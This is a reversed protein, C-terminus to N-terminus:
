RVGRGRLAGMIELFEAHTGAGAVELAADLITLAAMAEGVVSAAPVACVDSREVVAEVREGTRLDVSPLARGVTPLPKMTARAIVPEGNTMGGELGGARNTPRRPRGDPGVEIADHFSLGPTEGSAFGDGIEVAKIAPISMLAQALRGDLKLDWQVHSGLGAPAGAIEIEFSGGLTDGRERCEEVLARAREDGEPDLSYFPSADRRARREERGVAVELAVSGIRRVFGFVSIGATALVSAALAGAAVRAATERASAREMVDAVDTIGYKLAGALDAHGPRPRSLARYGDIRVDKNAVWLTVPGGITLKRKVGTLVEVKDREIAQRNSRGFGGQRRLLADDIAAEDLPTGFPLGEIIALLGKGHSEGATRFSLARV